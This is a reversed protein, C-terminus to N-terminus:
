RSEHNVAVGARGIVHRPSSASVGFASRRRGQRRSIIAVGVFHVAYRFRGIRFVSRWVRYRVLGFWLSVVRLCLFPRSSSGGRVQCDSDSSCSGLRRSVM